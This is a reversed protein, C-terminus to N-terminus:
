GVPADKLCWQRIHAPRGSGTPRAPSKPDGTLGITRVRTVAITSSRSERVGATRDAGSGSCGDSRRRRAVRRNMPPPATSPEDARDGASSFAGRDARRGASGSSGAQRDASPLYAYGRSRHEVEAEISTEHDADGVAAVVPIATVVVTVEIRSRRRWRRRGITDIPGSPNILAFM